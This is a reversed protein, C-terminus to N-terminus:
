VRSLLLSTHCLAVWGQCSPSSTVWLRQCRVSSINRESPATSPVLVGSELCNLFLHQVCRQLHRVRGGRFRLAKDCRRTGSSTSALFSNQDCSQLQSFVTSHLFCAPTGRYLRLAWLFFLLRLACGPFAEVFSLPQAVSVKCLSSCAM